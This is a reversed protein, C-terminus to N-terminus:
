PAEWLICGFDPHVNMQVVGDGQKVHVDLLENGSLYHCGGWIAGWQIGENIWHKCDKCHNM